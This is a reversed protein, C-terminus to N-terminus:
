MRIMNLEFGLGSIGEADIGPTSFPMRLKTRLPSVNNSQFMPGLVAEGIRIKVSLQLLVVNLLDHEYTEDRVGAYRRCSSEPHFQAIVDRQDLVGGCGEVRLAHCRCLYVCQQVSVRDQCGVFQQGRKRCCSKFGCALRM